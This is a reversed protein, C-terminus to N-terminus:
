RIEGAEGAVAAVPEQFTGVQSGTTTVRGNAARSARVAGAVRVGAKSDSGALRHKVVDHAARMMETPRAPGRFMRVGRDDGDQGPEAALAQRARIIGHAPAVPFSHFM